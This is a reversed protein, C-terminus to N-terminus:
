LTRAGHWLCQILSQRRTISAASKPAPAIFSTEHNARRNCQKVVTKVNHARACGRGRARTRGIRTAPQTTHTPSMQIHTRTPSAPAISSCGKAHGCSCPRTIDIIDQSPDHNMILKDIANIPERVHASIKPVAVVMAAAVPAPAVATTALRQKQLKNNTM